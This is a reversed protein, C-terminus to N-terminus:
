YGAGPGADGDEGAVQGLARQGGGDAVGRLSPGEGEGAARRGDDAVAEGDGAPELAALADGGGGAHGEDEERHRRQDRRRRPRGDGLEGVLSGDRGDDGDEDDGGARGDLMPRRPLQG